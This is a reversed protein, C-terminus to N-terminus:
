EQKILDEYYKIARDLIKREDETLWERFQEREGRHEVLGYLPNLSAL